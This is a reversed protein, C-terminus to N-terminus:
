NVKAKRGDATTEDFEVGFSFTFETTKVSSESKLTIKDGAVTIIMNPKASAAMKRIV